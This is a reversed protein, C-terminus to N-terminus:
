LLVPAPASMTSSMLVPAPFLLLAPLKSTIPLVRKKVALSPIALLPLSSHFLVPVAAPVSMTLSMLGPCLKGCSRVFTPLVSKKAALSVEAPLLSSQRLSPVSSPVTSTFSM